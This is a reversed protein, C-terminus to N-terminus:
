KMKPFASASGSGRAGTIAAAHHIGGAPQDGKGSSWPFPNCAELSASIVRKWLQM